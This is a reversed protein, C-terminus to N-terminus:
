KGSTLGDLRSRLESQLPGSAKKLGLRYYAKAAGPKGAAEAQKGKALYDLTEADNSGESEGKRRAIEALSEAGAEASSPGAVIPEQAVPAAREEAAPRAAIRLEPDVQPAQAAAANAPRNAGGPAHQADPPLAAVVSPAPPPGFHLQGADDYYMEGRLLRGEVTNAPGYNPMDGVVPVVSIVFPSQSIDQVAGSYGNLTTLTPTQSNMSSRSGQSAEGFFSLRMGGGLGVSGGGSIGAGPQYGGFQPAPAGGMNNFFFNRGTLSFGLNIREFFSSGSNLFPSQNNVMMQALATESTTGLVAATAVWLMARKM